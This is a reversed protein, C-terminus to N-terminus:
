FGLDILVRFIDVWPIPSPSLRVFPTVALGIADPNDTFLTIIEDGLALRRPSRGIAWWLFAQNTTMGEAAFDSSVHRVWTVIGTENGTVM